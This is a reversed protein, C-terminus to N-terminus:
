YIQRAVAVFTGPQRSHMSRRLQDGSRLGSYIFVNNQYVTQCGSQM